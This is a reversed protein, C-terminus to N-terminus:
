MWSLFITFYNLSFFYRILVYILACCIPILLNDSINIPKKTLVDIIFFVLTFILAWLMGTFFFCIIFCTICGALTGEWTKSGNIKIKRKGYRIGIQSTMLDAISSMGLIAFYVMPPCLFSAFMQGLTFYLYAGYGEREEDCLYISCIFNIPFTLYRTKRTFEMALMFLTFSYFFFFLLYYFWGLAFLVDSMSNPETFIRLYLYLMNNEYPIMGQISGSFEKVVTIGIYWLILLGIFILVHALKRYIDNRIKSRKLLRKTMNVRYREFVGSKFGFKIIIYILSSFLIIISFIIIPLGLTILWLPLITPHLTLDQFMVILFLLIHILVVFLAGFGVINEYLAKKDSFHLYLFSIIFYSTFLVLFWGFFIIM